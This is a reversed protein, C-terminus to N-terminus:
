GRVISAPWVVRPQQTRRRPRVAGRRLVILAPAVGLVIALFVPIWLDVSASLIMAFAMNALYVVLPIGSTFEDPEVEDRWILRSLGMYLLGTVSWGIFNKIPMGFYPGEQFWVWFQITLAEHAMAPDLVLDWVTLLWVGGFLTWFTVHGIGLRHVIQRALLYCAFGIYFWSLPISYPVHGLVKWGLFDTYAYNGFPWGTGTGLLESTLSLPVSVGFFIATKRWGITAVGFLVMTVAGLVIHISGAYEISFDFVRVANPDDNWLEPNPLMILIGVLGFILAGLHAAFAIWAPRTSKLDSM